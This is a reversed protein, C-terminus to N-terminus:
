LGSNAPYLQQRQQQRKHVKRYSMQYPITIGIVIALTVTVAISADSLMATVVSSDGAAIQLIGSVVRFAFMGPVLAVVAAFGVGAYPMHRRFCLPALIAGVLLCDLLTALPMGLDWVELSIWRLSHGLACAICPYIIYRYPLSFYIPYCAAVFFAALADAWLPPTATTAAAPLDTGGLLLGLITGMAIALITLASDAARALGLHHRRAALDFCCNLVQPGPVLVMAPCVAVLRADTDLQLHVALAGALGGIFAASFAQTYLSASSLAYKRVIGGLTAAGFILALAPVETVGFIIALCFAGFGAAASFLWPPSSPQQLARDLAQQLEARSTAAPDFVTATISSVIRMQPGLPPGEQHVVVRTGEYLTIGAWRFDATYHTGLKDNLKELAHLTAATSAGHRFMTSLIGLILQADAEATSLAKTTAM